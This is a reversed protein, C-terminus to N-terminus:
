AVAIVAIDSCSRAARAFRADTTLLQADDGLAETLALYTADYASVNDRVQWARPVLVDHRYREVPLDLLDEVAQGVRESDATPTAAARRLASLVEVDLLHPAHLDLGHEEMAAAIRQAVPRALLLDVVASADVVLM